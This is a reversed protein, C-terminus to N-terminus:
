TEEHIGERRSGHDALLLRNQFGNQWNGIGLHQEITGKHVELLAYAVEDKRLCRLLPTSLGM